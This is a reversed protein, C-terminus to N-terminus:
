ESNSIMRIIVRGCPKNPLVPANLPQRARRLTFDRVSASSIVASSRVLPLATSLAVRPSRCLSVETLSPSSFHFGVDSGFVTFGRNQFGILSRNAEATQHGNILEVHRHPRVLDVPQDSGIAGAFRGDEIQQSPDIFWGRARDM